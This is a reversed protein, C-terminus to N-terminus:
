SQRRSRWRRYVAGAGVLVALNMMVVSPEPVVYLSDVTPYYNDTISYNPNFVEVSTIPATTSVFGRFVSPGSLAVSVPLEGSLFNIKLTGNGYNGFDDTLCFDGGVAWTGTPISILLTGGMSGLRYSPEALYVGSGVTGSSLLYRPSTIGTKPNEMAGGIKLSGGNYEFDGLPGNQALAGFHNTTSNWHSAYNKTVAGFDAKTTYVVAAEASSRGGAFVTAVGLFLGIIRKM